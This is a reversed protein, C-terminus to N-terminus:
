QWIQTLRDQKLCIYLDAKLELKDPQQLIDSTLIAATRRERERGQRAAFYAPFLQLTGTGQSNSQSCQSNSQNRM